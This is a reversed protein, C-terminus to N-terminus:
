AVLRVEILNQFGIVGALLGERKTGSTRKPTAGLLLAKTEKGGSNSGGIRRDETFLCEFAKTTTECFVRQIVIIVRLGLWRRSGRRVLVFEGKGFQAHRVAKDIGELLTPNSVEEGYM